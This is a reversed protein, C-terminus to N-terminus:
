RSRSLKKKSATIIDDLMGILKEPLFIFRGLYFICILKEQLRIPARNIAKVYENLRRWRPFVLEGKKKPDYWVALEYETVRPASSVDPHIRRFFLYESIEHFKGHLSLEGLLNRDSRPYNGIKETNRLTSLRILGFVAHCLGPNMLFKEFRRHPSPSILNLDDAYKGFIKEKHDVLATRPYALVVSEESDLAEVCRELFEPALYDDHAAWKFYEGCAYDLLVNYNKAAGLNKQLRNYIIRNDHSAYEECIEQTGDTSANDSIILEFDDYTQNLISEIAESLYKEGNYVPIGISMRPELNRGM